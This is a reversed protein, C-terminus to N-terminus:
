KDEQGWGDVLMRDRQKLIMNWNERLEADTFVIRYVKYEPGGGKYNGMIHIIRMIVINLDMMFCYSKVQTMYRWNDVPLQRSSKWTFKLETLILGAEGRPDPEMGDPSGVIDDKWVEGPRVCEREKLTEELVDEWVFGLNMTLQAEGWHGRYEWGMAKELSYIVDTLHIVGGGMTRDEGSGTKPIFPQDLLEWEM